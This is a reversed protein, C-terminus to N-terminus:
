EHLKKYIDISFVIPFCLMGFTLAELVIVVRIWISDIENIGLVNVMYVFAFPIYFVLVLIELPTM